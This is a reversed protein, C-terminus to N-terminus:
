SGSDVTVLSRDPRKVSDTMTICLIVATRMRSFMSHYSPNKEASGWHELAKPLAELAAFAATVEEIKVMLPISSRLADPPILVLSSGDLCV